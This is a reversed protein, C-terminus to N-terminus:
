RGIPYFAQNHTYAHEYWPFGVAMLHNAGRGWEEAGEKQRERENGGRKKTSTSATTTFAKSRRKYGREVGQWDGRPVSTCEARAAWGTPM